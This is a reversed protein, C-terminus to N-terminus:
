IHILSLNIELQEDIERSVYTIEPWIERIKSMDVSNQSLIQNANRSVGDKAINVGFKSVKSPSITLKDM